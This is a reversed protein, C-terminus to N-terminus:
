GKDETVIMFPCSIAGTPCIAECQTCWSCGQTELVEVRNGVLKIANCTCVNVCLGCGNCYDPKFVPMEAM